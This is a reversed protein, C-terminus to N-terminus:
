NRKQCKVFLKRRMRDSKSADVFKALKPEMSSKLDCLVYKKYRRNNVSGRLLASLKDPSTELHAIKETFHWLTFSKPRAPWTTETM